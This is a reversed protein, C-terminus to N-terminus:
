HQAICSFEATSAAVGFYFPEEKVVQVEDIFTSEQRLVSPESLNDCIKHAKDQADLQANQIAIKKAGDAFYDYADGKGTMNFLLASHATISTLLTLILALKM